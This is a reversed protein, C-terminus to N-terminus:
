QGKKGHLAPLFNHVESPACGAAKEPTHEQAQRKIPFLHWATNRQGHFRRAYPQPLFSFTNPVDSARYRGDPCVPIIRNGDKYPSLLHNYHRPLRRFGYWRWPVDASHIERLLSLLSGQGHPPVDASRACGSRDEASHCPITWRYWQRHKYHPSVAGPM